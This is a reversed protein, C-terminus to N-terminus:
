PSKRFSLAELCASGSSSGTLSPPFLWQPPIPKKFEVEHAAQAPQLMWSLQAPLEMPFTGYDWRPTGSIVLKPSVAMGVTSAEGQGERKSSSAGMEWM